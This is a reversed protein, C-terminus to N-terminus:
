RMHRTSMAATIWSICVTSLWLARLEPSRTWTYPAVQRSRNRAGCAVVKRCGMCQPLDIFSLHVTFGYRPGGIDLTFEFGDVIRQPEGLDHAVIIRDGVTRREFGDVIRVLNEILGVGAPGLVVGVPVAIGLDVLQDVALRDIGSSCARLCSTHSISRLSASSPARGIM